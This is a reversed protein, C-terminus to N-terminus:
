WTTDTRGHPAVIALRWIGSVIGGDEVQAGLAADDPDVNVLGAPPELRASGFAAVVYIANRVDRKIGVVLAFGEPGLPISFQMGLTM